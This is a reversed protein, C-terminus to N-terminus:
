ITIPEERLRQYLAMCLGVLLATRALVLMVFPMVLAGAIEGGTDGTRIFLLPYEAFTVLSLMVVVLVGNRTPFNLLTLPTIQVLWQPSWGQAQLFFILVTIGVFAVFGKDDFRRTRAFVFAGVAGALALRVLGPVVPPNGRINAANAPDLREQVSGFIGTGYNRDLLAWGTQYSSKSFQATLSALAMDQRQAILPIYVLMFIGIVILTYRLAARSDHFSWVAGLILAPTFKALAGFAIIVASRVDQKRLLWWIGLLLSFAVITEFAWWLFIMPALTVAYIWALTIGTNVGHLKAGINRLLLLNGVDFALMIFGMFMAFSTYNAGAGLLQYVLVVLFSWVPPFESWWDRFPLLGQRSLAALEFHYALDGGAGVGREVGQVIIPQYVMMMMVRFTVFLILLLRFDGLLGAITVPSPSVAPAATSKAM